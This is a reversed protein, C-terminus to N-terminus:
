GMPGRPRPNFKPQHTLRHRLQLENLLDNKNQENTEANNECPVGTVKRDTAGSFQANDSIPHKKYPSIDGGGGGGRRLGLADYSSTNVRGNKIADREKRKLRQENVLEYHRAIQVTLLHKAEAEPLNDDREDTSLIDRYHFEVAGTKGGKSDGSEEPLYKKEDQNKKTM